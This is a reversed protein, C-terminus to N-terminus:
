VDELRRVCKMAALEKNQKVTEDAIQQCVEQPMPQSVVAAGTNGNAFLIVLIWYM